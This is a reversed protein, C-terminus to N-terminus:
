WRFYPDKLDRIRHDPRRGRSSRSSRPQHPERRAGFKRSGM